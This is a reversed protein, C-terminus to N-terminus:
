QQALTHAYIVGLNIPIAAIYWKITIDFASHETSFTNILPVGVTTLLCYVTAINTIM